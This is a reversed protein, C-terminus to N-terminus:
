INLALTRVTAGLDTAQALGGSVEVKLIDMPDGEHSSPFPNHITMDSAGSPSLALASLDTGALEPYVSPSGMTNTTFINFTHIIKRTRDTSDADAIFVSVVKMNFDQHEISSLTRQINDEENKCPIVISLFPANM